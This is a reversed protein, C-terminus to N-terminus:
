AFRALKPQSYVHHVVIWNGDAPASPDLFVCAGHVRSHAGEPGIQRFLINNAKNGQYEFLGLEPKTWRIGDTSEAYCFSTDDTTPWGEVDYCEYWLRYKDEEQLFSFWNLTASEWPRDRVLNQEGTKEAPHLKLRINESEAFFLNDILLQKNSGIDLTKTAKDEAATCVSYWLAIGLTLCTLTFSKM